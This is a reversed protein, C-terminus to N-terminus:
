DSARPEVADTSMGGWKQPISWHGSFILLSLRHPLLAARHGGGLRYVFQEILSDRDEVLAEPEDEPM